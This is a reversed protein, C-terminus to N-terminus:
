FLAILSPVLFLIGCLLDSLLNCLTKEDTQLEEYSVIKEDVFDAISKTAHVKKKPKVKDEMLYHITFGDLRLYQFWAAALLFCAFVFCPHTWVSLLKDSNLFTDWLLCLVLGISLKTISKYFTPRLMYSHWIKRM